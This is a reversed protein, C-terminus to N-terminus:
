KRINGLEVYCAVIEYWQMSPTPSIHTHRTRIFQVQQQKKSSYMTQVHSRGSRGPQLSISSHIEHTLRHLGDLRWKGLKQYKLYDISIKYFVVNSYYIWFISFGRLTVCSPRSKLSHFHKWTPDSHRQRERDIDCTKLVRERRSRSLIWSRKKKPSSKFQNLSANIQPSFLANIKKYSSVSIGIGKWRKRKV